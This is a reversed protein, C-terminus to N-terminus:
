LDHIGIQHSLIIMDALDQCEEEMNTQHLPFKCLGLLCSTHLNLSYTSM